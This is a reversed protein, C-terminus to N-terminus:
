DRPDVFQVLAPDAADFVDLLEKSTPCWCVVLTKCGVRAATKLAARHREDPSGAVILIQRRSGRLFAEDPRTRLISRFGEAGLGLAPYLSTPGAVGLREADPVTLAIHGAAAITRSITM